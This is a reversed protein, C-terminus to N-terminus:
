SSLHWARCNSIQSYEELKCQYNLSCHGTCSVNQRVNIGSRGHQTRSQLKIVGCLAVDQSTTFDNRQNLTPCTDGGGLGIWLSFVSVDRYSGIFANTKIYYFFFITYRATHFQPALFLYKKTRFYPFCLTLMM